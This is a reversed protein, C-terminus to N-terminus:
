VRNPVEFNNRYEKTLMANAQKSKETMATIKSTSYQSLGIMIAISLFVLVGLGLMKNNLSLKM